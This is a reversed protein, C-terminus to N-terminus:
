REKMKYYFILNYVTFFDIDYTFVIKYMNDYRKEETISYYLIDVNKETILPFVSKTIVLSPVEKVTEFLKVNTSAEYLLELQEETFEVKNWSKIRDTESLLKNKRGEYEEKDEINKFILETNTFIYKEPEKKAKKVDSFYILSKGEFEKKFVEIFESKLKVLFSGPNIIETDMGGIVISHNIVYMDKKFIYALKTLVENITLEKAM